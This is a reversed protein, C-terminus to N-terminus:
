DLNLTIKVEGEHKIEQKDTFMKLHKGIMELAKLAGISDFKYVGIGIENIEQVMEKRDSDWIMVPTSEMCRNFVDVFGKLVFSADLKLNDAREQMLECVRTLVKDNRLLRNGAVHASNKAYGARIAAQTGNLLSCYELAFIERRDNDLQNSEETAM